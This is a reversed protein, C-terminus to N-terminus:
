DPGAIYCCSSGEDPNPGRNKNRNHDDEVAIALLQDQYKIGLKKLIQFINTDNIGTKCKPHVMFEIGWAVNIFMWTSVIKITDEEHLDAKKIPEMTKNCIPCVHNISDIHRHLNGMKGNYHKDKYEVM